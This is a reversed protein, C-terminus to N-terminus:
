KVAIVGWRAMRSLDSKSGGAAIYAQVTKHKQVAAFCKAKHPSRYTKNKVLITITGTNPVPVAKPLARVSKGTLAKTVAQKAQKAKNNNKGNSKSIQKAM